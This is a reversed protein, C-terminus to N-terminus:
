DTIADITNADVDATANTDVDATANTDVDATANTDVDATANTDVDATTNTDVDATANTDVDATANTDVDATANTDVDATANTDVDATANTDVDATANTDVDATANTDVDATANTDVDATANTDVDATANTDVDAIANTDVDAIANTDVDATANTDVDAIANTDVDAIANTDVDATANADMGSAPDLGSPGSRLSPLPPPLSPMPQVLRQMRALGYLQPPAQGKPQEPQTGEQEYKLRERLENHRDFPAILVTSRMAKKIAAEEEELRQLEAELDGHLVELGYHHDDHDHDHDHDHNDTATSSKNELEQITTMVAMMEEELSELVEDADGSGPKQVLPPPPAPYRPYKSWLKALAKSDIAERLNPFSRSSRARQWKVGQMDQQQDQMDQQQDQQSQLIVSSLSSSRVRKRCVCDQAQMGVAAASDRTLPPIQTLLRVRGRPTDDVKTISEASDGCDKRSGDGFETIQSWDRPLAEREVEISGSSSSKKEDLVHTSEMSSSKFPTASSEM